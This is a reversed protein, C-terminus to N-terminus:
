KHIHSLVHLRIKNLDDYYEYTPSIDLSFSSDFKQRARKQKTLFLARYLARIKKDMWDPLRLYDLIDEMKIISPNVPYYKKMYASMAKDVVKKSEETDLQAQESLHASLCDRFRAYKENYTGNKLFDRLSKSTRRASNPIAERAAYLVDLCKMKGYILTLMSPLLEGFRDDDTFRLTEEFIMKMFDTRHIAYLTSIFYNSLHYTLRVKADPFLISEHSYTPRWCFQQNGSGNDKLCFGVYYGHAVVFDQNEELFDVSQNIGDPTILDDDGCFVCYATDVHNVADAVKHYANIESPYKDLYIINSRKATESFIKKNLEKNEDSSSDAVVINCDTECTDYYDLIRRLYSARNYTPIVISCSINKIKNGNRLM